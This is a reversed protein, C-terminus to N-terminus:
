GVPTDQYICFFEEPMLELYSMNYTMFNMSDICCFLIIMAVWQCKGLQWSRTNKGLGGADILLQDFEADLREQERASKM